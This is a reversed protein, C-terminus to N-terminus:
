MFSQKMLASILPYKSFSLILYQSTLLFFEM